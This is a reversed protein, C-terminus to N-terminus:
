KLVSSLQSRTYVTLFDIIQQHDNNLQMSLNFYTLIRAQQECFRFTKHDSLRKLYLRREGYYTDMRDIVAIPSDIGLRNYVTDNRVFDHMENFVLIDQLGVHDGCNKWISNILSKNDCSCFFFSICFFAFFFKLGMTFNSQAIHVVAICRIFILMKKQVIKFRRNNKNYLIAVLQREVSLILM